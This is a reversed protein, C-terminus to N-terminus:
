NGFFGCLNRRVIAEHLFEAAFEFKSKFIQFSGVQVVRSDVNFVGNGRDSLLEACAFM